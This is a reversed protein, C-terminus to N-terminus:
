KMDYSLSQQARVIKKVLVMRKATTKISSAPAAACKRGAIGSSHL